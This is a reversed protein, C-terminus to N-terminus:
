GIMLGNRFETYRLARTPRPNATNALRFGYFQDKDHTVFVDAHLLYASSWLDIAGAKGKHGYGEEKMSRAYSAYALGLLVVPWEPIGAFFDALKNAPLKEGTIQYLDEMMSFLFAEEKYHERILAAFSSPRKAKGDKFIQELSPRVKAFVEFSAAWQTRLDQLEKKEKGELTFYDDVSMGYNLRNSDPRNRGAGYELTLIKLLDVPLALPEQGQAIERLLLQLQERRVENKTELVEVCNVATLYVSHAALLGPVIAKRDADDCLQNVASTDFCYIM